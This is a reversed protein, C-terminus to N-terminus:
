THEESRELRWIMIGPYPRAYEGGYMLLYGGRETELVKGKLHGSALFAGISDFDNVDLDALIVDQMETTGPKLAVHWMTNSM